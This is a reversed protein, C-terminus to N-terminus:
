GEDTVTLRGWHGAHVSIDGKHSIFITVPDAIKPGRVRDPVSFNIEDYIRTFNARLKVGVDDAADVVLRPIDIRHTGPELTVTAAAHLRRYTLQTEEATVLNRRARKEIRGINQRTTGFREAIARQTLGRARLELVQLQRITFLGYRHSM